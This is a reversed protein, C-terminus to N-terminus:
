PESQIPIIKPSIESKTNTATTAATAMPASATLPLGPSQVDPLPGPTAVDAGVGAGVTAGAALAAGPNVLILPRTISVLVPRPTAPTQM